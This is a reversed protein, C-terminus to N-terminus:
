ETEVHFSNKITSNNGAVATAKDGTAVAQVTPGVVVQEVAVDSVEQQTSMTTRVFLWGLFSVVTILSASVHLIKIPRSLGRWYKRM